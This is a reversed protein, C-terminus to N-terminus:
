RIDAVDRAVTCLLLDNQTAPDRITLEGVPSPMPRASKTSAVTARGSAASPGHDSLNLDLHRLRERDM